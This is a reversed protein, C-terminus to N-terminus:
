TESLTEVRRNTRGELLRGAPPGRAGHLLLSGAAARLPRLLLPADGGSRGSADGDALHGGGAAQRVAAFSVRGSLVAAVVGVALGRLALAGRPGKGGAVAVCVHGGAVGRGRRGAGGGGRRPLAAGHLLEGGSHGFDVQAESTPVAGGLLRPLRRRSVVQVMLVVVVLPRELRQGVAVGGAGLLAGDLGAQVLEGRHLQQHAVVLQQAVAAGLAPLLLPRTKRQANMSTTTTGRQSDSHAGRHRAGGTRAPSRGQRTCLLAAESCTALQHLPPPHPILFLAVDLFMVGGDGCTTVDWGLQQFM